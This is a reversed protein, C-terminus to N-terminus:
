KQTWLLNEEILKHLTEIQEKTIKHPAIIYENWVSVVGSIDNLMEVNINTLEMLAERTIGKNKFIYNILYEQHSPVAYEITGDPLIMIELYDIFTQKHKELDFKSYVDYKPKPKPISKKTSKKKIKSTKPKIGMIKDNKDQFYKNREKEHEAYYKCRCNYSCFQAKNFDSKYVVWNAPQVIIQKCQDCKITHEITSGPAISELEDWSSM